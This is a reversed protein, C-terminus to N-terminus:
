EDIHSTYGARFSNLRGNSYSSNYKNCTSSLLDYNDYTYQRSSFASVIQSALTNAFAAKGAAIKSNVTSESLGNKIVSINKIVDWYQGGRISAAKNRFSSGSFSNWHDPFSYGTSEKCASGAFALATKYADYIGLHKKVLKDNAFKDIQSLKQIGVIQTDVSGRSCSPSAYISDLAVATKNLAVENLHNMCIDAEEETIYEENKKREIGEQRSRYADADWGHIDQWRKDTDDNLEKVLSDRVPAIGSASGDSFFVVLGIVILLGLALFIIKLYKM